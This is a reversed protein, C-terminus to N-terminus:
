LLHTVGPVAPGLDGLNTCKGSTSFALSARSRTPMGCNITSADGRVNKANTSDTAMCPHVGSVYKTRNAYVKGVRVSPLTFFCQYLTRERDLRAGTAKCSKPLSVRILSREPCASHRIRRSRPVIWGIWGMWKM